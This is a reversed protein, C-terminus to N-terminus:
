WLTTLCDLTNALRRSRHPVTPFNEGNHYEGAVSAGESGAQEHRVKCFQVWPFVLRSPAQATMLTSLALLPVLNSPSRM